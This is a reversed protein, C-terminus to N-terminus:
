SKKKRMLLTSVALVLIVSVVIVIPIIPNSSTEEAAEEVKTTTAETTTKANTTPENVKYERVNDKLAELKESIFTVDPEGEATTFSIVIPAELSSSKSSFGKDIVLIYTKGEELNSTPKVFMQKKFDRQTQTDPFIVSIELSDGNEDVLHVLNKNSELLNIEAINGSFEFEITPDVQIDTDGDKISASDLSIPKSNASEASSFVSTTLLLVVSILLTFIKKM